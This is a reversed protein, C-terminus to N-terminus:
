PFGLLHDSLGYPLYSIDRHVKNGNVEEIEAEKGEECPVSYRMLSGQDKHAKFLEGSMENVDAYRYGDM